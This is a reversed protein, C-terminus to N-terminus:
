FRRAIRRIYYLDEAEDYGYLWYGKADAGFITQSADDTEVSGLKDGDHTYVRYTHKEAGYANALRVWLRREADVLVEDIPPKHEDHEFDRAFFAGGGVGVGVDYENIEREDLLPSPLYADKVHAIAEGKAVSYVTFDLRTNSGMFVLQKDPSVALLTKAIWPFYLWGRDNNHEVKLPDAHHEPGPSFIETKEGEVTELFVGGGKDPDRFPDNIKVYLFHANDIVLPDYQSPIRTTVPKGHKYAVVRPREEDVIYLTEEEPVYYLYTPFGLEGPGEGKRGFARIEKGHADLHYVRDDLRDLIFIEGKDTVVADTITKLPSSFAESNTEWQGDAPSAFLLASALLFLTM